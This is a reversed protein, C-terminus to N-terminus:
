LSDCSLVNIELLYQVLWFTFLTLGVSGIYPNIWKQKVFAVIGLVPSVTSAIWLAALLYHVIGISTVTCFLLRLWSEGLFGIGGWVFLIHSVLLCLFAPKRVQM